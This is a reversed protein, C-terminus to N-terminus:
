GLPYSMRATVLLATDSRESLLSKGQGDYIGSSKVPYVLQELDDYISLQNLIRYGSPTLAISAGVQPAIADQAKLILYKIPVPAKKFANALSLGAIGGGIIIVRLPCVGDAFSPPSHSM